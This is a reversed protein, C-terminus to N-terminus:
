IPHTGGVQRGVTYWPIGPGMDLFHHLYGGRESMGLGGPFSMPSSIDGGRSCFSVQSFMVKRCSRKRSTVIFFDARKSRVVFYSYLFANWYSAYRRSEWNRPSRCGGQICVGGQHLGREGLHLGGDWQICVGRTMHGTICAPFGVGM